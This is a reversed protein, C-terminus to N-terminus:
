KMKMGNLYFLGVLAHSSCIEGTQVMEMAKDLPILEISIEEDDIGHVKSLLAEMDVKSSDFKAVYHYHIETSIGPSTFGKGIFTLDSITLTTEEEVERIAAEEPTQGEEIHGAVPELNYPNFYESRASHCSVPSRFQRVFLVNETHVDVITISVADAKELVMEKKVSGDRLEVHALSLSAFKHKHIPEMRVVKKSM